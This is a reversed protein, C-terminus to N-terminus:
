KTNHCYYKLHEDFIKSISLQSRLKAVSPEEGPQSVTILQNISQALATSTYPSFTKIADRELKNYQTIQPLDYALIPCAVSIWTSLSGSASFFKFPCVALDTAALYIELEEESLYGTIRLREEVGKTRALSRLQDIYHEHGPAAGGAFVVKVNQPLEPLANILLEYGKRSHIFGLLTVVTSGDLNLVTKAEASKIKLFREEVFHAVVKTKRNDIVSLREAEEQTCVVILQAQNILWRFPFAKSGYMYRMFRLPHRPIQLSSTSSEKTQTAEQKVPFIYDQFQSLLTKLANTLNPPPNYVDHLTTVLPCPCYHKFCQLYNLQEWSTGWLQKNNALSYQIHVIEAENLQKAADALKELNHKKDETLLVSAELVKLNQKKHAENALLRGYRCIGHQSPGNHLYGVTMKNAM